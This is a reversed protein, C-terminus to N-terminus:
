IIVSISKINELFNAFSGCDRSKQPQSLTEPKKAHIRLRNKAESFKAM